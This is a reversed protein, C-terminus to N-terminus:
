VVSCFHSCLYQLKIHLCSIGMKVPSQIRALSIMLQSYQMFCQYSIMSIYQSHSFTLPIVYTHLIRHIFLVEIYLCAVM